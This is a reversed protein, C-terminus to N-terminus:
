QDRAARWQAALGAHACSQGARFGRAPCAHGLGLDGLKFVAAQEGRYLVHLRQAAKVLCFRSFLIRQQFHRPPQMGRNLAVPRDQAPTRGAPLGPEAFKFVLGRGQPIEGRDHDGAQQRGRLVHAAHEGEVQRAGLEGPCDGGPLCALLDEVVGGLREGEHDGLGRQAPPEAGRVDHGALGAM